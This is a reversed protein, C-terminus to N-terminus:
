SELTTIRAELEQITKVLLPVLKSQDIGQHIPNGDKDVADKEGTIAEPVISSVEHALFGDVTRDKNIKFNFRSPKLQKLRTTADWDTVVNEKLRYDSSTNYTTSSSDITVTGVVSGGSFAVNSGHWFRIANNSSNGNGILNLIDQTNSTGSSHMVSCRGAASVTTPGSNTTTGILLNGGTVTVDGTFTAASLSAKADLQTQIASTVGDVYNLEAATATITTGGIKLASLNPAIATTGDLLDDITDLNTNLKTGWTDSSSGVEPKTLSYTTTTTDAM